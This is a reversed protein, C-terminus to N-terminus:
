HRLILKILDNQTNTEFSNLYRSEARMNRYSGFFKSQKIIMHQKNYNYNANRLLYLYRSYPDSVSCLLICIDPSIKHIKQDYCNSNIMRLCYYGGSSSGLLGIKKLLILDLNLIKQQKKQNEKDLIQRYLRLVLILQNYVKIKTGLNMVMKSAVSM